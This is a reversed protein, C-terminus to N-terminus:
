LNSNLHKDGTELTRMTDHLEQLGMDIHYIGLKWIMEM